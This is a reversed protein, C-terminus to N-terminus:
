QNLLKEASVRIIKDDGSKQSGRGDTNSTTFYLDNDPGKIITRIRGFQKKFNTILSLMNTESIKAQYIAEGRLGGFFLNNNIYTLSAPAWTDDKGSEIVPAILGDKVETGRVVPWGYNGGKVILNVEDNGTQSGSPGHESSWLNKNDDWALGQPNRHGYSYVANGFPNDGPIGGESDIRLIKGNLSNKDQASNPNEADGTTVYLYGDPGFAIRGGDHNSSGKINELIVKRETLLDNQLRYKEVRNTISGSSDTTSYLYIYQNENFKPDIAIGLLGGEGIHKVGEIEAVIKTEAGIKKVKGSRETVLLDDNPLFVIDWPINLNQAIIEFDEDGPEDILKDVLTQTSDTRPSVFYHVIRDKYYVVCIGLLVLILLIVRAM